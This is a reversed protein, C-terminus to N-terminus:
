KNGAALGAPTKQFEVFGPLAEIKALWANVKPYSSLDVNGEPARAIYSYLAIDAISPKSGTIYDSKELESEILKLVRHSRAIVEEANYPAKFVTILRAASPGYAIEGAAVSLWRQVRAAGLPDEPLWDTKNLKKAVYVLIANSDAIVTGEDVLVPVQGFPNLKLFEPSKHEGKMLDVEVIEHPVNLLSLFLRARHSHGSLPHFYLKMM